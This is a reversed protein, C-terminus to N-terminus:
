YRWLVDVSDVRWSQNVFSKSIDVFNKSKLYSLIGTWAIQVGNDGAFSVPCLNFKVKHRFCALKLMYSLKKNASVGGVVLLEKKETASLAREVAETIMAFATEQISYCIDENSYKNTSILRKAASLLGSFTVDNGKISYPLSIYNNSSKSALSEIESGCPSALGLYRGFQDLLQGLTIDLTEGIVRWRKSNFVLIMTHGGSVLLVLSDQGDTLSMGLEIHGLAHNIPILKIDYFSSISRAIVAGIRLCPGLGPGASYAVIDLDKYKIKSSALSQKLVEIAVSAHHRAAERPHIGSGDPAKFTDRVDSLINPFKEYASFKIVSCAFTHATSEIGLCFM